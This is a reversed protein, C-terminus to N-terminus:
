IKDLAVFVASLPILLLSLADFPTAFVINFRGDGSGVQAGRWDGPLAKGRGAVSGVPIAALVAAGLGALVSLLPSMFVYYRLFAYIGAGVIVVALGGPNKSGVEVLMFLTALSFLVLTTITVGAVGWQGAELLAGLRAVPVPWTTPLGLVTSLLGFHGLLVGGFGLCAFFYALPHWDTGGLMAFALVVLTLLAILFVGLWMPLDPTVPLTLILVASILAVTADYWQKSTIRDAFCNVTLFLLLLVFYPTLETWRFSVSRMPPVYGGEPQGKSPQVVYPTPKATEYYSTPTEQWGGGAPAVSPASGAITFFAAPWLKEYEGARVVVMGSIDSKCIEFVESESLDTLGAYELKVSGKMCALGVNPETAQSVTEAVVPSKVAEVVLTEAKVPGSSVTGGILGLAAVPVLLNAGRMTVVKCEIETCSYVTVRDGKILVQEGTKTDTVGAVVNITEGPKFPGSSIGSIPIRVINTGVLIAAIALVVILGIFVKMYWEVKFGLGRQGSGGNNGSMGRGGRVLIEAVLTGCEPCKDVGKPIESGCNCCEM